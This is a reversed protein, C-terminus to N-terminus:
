AVKAALAYEEPDQEFTKQCDPSCFYYTKDKYPSAIAKGKVEMGCVPCPNIEM